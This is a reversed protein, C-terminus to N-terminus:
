ARILAAAPQPQSKDAAADRHPPPRPPRPLARRGPTSSRTRGLSRPHGFVSRAFASSVLVPSRWSRSSRPHLINFRPISSIFLPNRPPPPSDIPQSLGTPLQSSQRCQLPGCATWCCQDGSKGAGGIDYLLQLVRPPTAPLAGAITQRLPGIHREAAGLKRGDAWLPWGISGAERDKWGGVGDRAGLMGDKWGTWQLGANPRPNEVPEEVERDGEM